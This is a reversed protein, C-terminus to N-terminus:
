VGSYQSTMTPYVKEVQVCLNWPVADDTSKKLYMMYTYSRKELLDGIYM